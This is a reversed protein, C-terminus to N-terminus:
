AVSSPTSPRGSRPSSVLSSIAEFKQIVKKLEPCTKSEKDDLMGLKWRYTHLAVTSNKSNEYFLKKLLVKETLSLISMLVAEVVATPYLNDKKYRRSSQM